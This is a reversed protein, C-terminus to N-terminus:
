GLACLSPNSVQPSLFGSTRRQQFYKKLGMLMRFRAETLTQNRFAVDDDDQGSLEAELLGATLNSDTLMQSKASSRPRVPVKFSSESKSAMSSNGARQWLSPLDTKRRVLNFYSQSAFFKHTSEKVPYQATEMYIKIQQPLEASQELMQIGSGTSSVMVVSNTRTQGTSAASSSDVRAGTSIIPQTKRGQEQQGLLATEEHFSGGFPAEQGQAGKYQADLSKREPVAHSGGRLLPVSPPKSLSEVLRWRRDIIGKAGHEFVPKKLPKAADEERGYVFDEVLKWNIGHVVTLSDSKMEELTSQTYENLADESKKRYKIQLPSLTELGCIKLLFPIGPANILLTLLVFGCVWLASQARVKREAKFDNDEQDPFEYQLLEQALILALAGRLGALSMFIMEQLNLKFGFLGVIPSVVAIELFRLVFIGVYVGPLWGLITTWADENPGDFLDEECRYFFNTASAGAFFFVIGNTLLQTVDWFSNFVNSERASASIDWQTTSAGYLGYVVVAIVGSVGVVSEACYYCLYSIGVTIGVEGVPTHGQRNQLFKFLIRTIIGGAIGILAGGTALWLVELAMKGVVTPVPESKLTGDISDKFRPWFLDFFVISTADNFLSEGEALIVLSEPGSGDKMIATVALADTSAIMSAFLFADTWEWGENRLNLVYLM